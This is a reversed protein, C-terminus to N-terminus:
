LLQRIGILCRFVVRRKPFLEVAIQFVVDAPGTGNVMGRSQGLMQATRLDPQLAFVQVVGARVLYVVSDTLCQEGAAHAFFADDGFGARTLVAHSGGGDGGAEAHSAVHVHARVVDLTLHGVHEAHFQQACVYDANVAAAARQFVRHVFGHAFPDGAHVVREVDDAGGGTGRRIGFHHAIELANDAVFGFRLHLFGDASLGVDGNGADAASRVGDSQEVRIDAFFVHAEDAHFGATQAHVGGVVGRRNGAFGGDAYQVAEAAVQHLVFVTLDQPRVGNGCTEVVGADARFM